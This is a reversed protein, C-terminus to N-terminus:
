IEYGNTILEVRKAGLRKLDRVWTESVTLVTNAMQLVERELRRHKNKVLKSLSFEDLLDLESWPDRFDAIWRLNPLKKKLSLGILHMSHPPGTTIIHQINYKELKNLLYKVSPKVWYVKPDPIFINGRVWNIFRNRFSRKRTVLGSSQTKREKGLIKDKLTYPEWIYTKWIETDLSIDSSLGKDEIEIYPNEPTYIIPQWNNNPLYKAFKLWRQVGSGGFPPWYYSIILVKKM